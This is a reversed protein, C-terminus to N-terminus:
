EHGSFGFARAISGFGGRTVSGVVSKEGIADQNTCASCRVM